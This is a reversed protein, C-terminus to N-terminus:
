IKDINLMCEGMKKIPRFPWLHKNYYQSTSISLHAIVSQSNKSFQKNKLSLSSFMGVADPMIFFIYQLHCWALHELYLTAIVRPLLATGSSMNGPSWNRAFSISRWYSIFYFIKKKFDREAGVWNLRKQWNRKWEKQGSSSYGSKLKWSCSLLKLRM